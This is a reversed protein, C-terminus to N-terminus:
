VLAEALFALLQIIDLHGVVLQMTGFQFNSIEM